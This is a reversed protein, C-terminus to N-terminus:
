KDRKKHFAVYLSILKDVSERIEGMGKKVVEQLLTVQSDFMKRKAPTKWIPEKGGSLGSEQMLERGFTSLQELEKGTETLGANLANILEEHGKMFEKDHKIVELFEKVKTFVVELSKTLNETQLTISDFYDRNQKPDVEILKGTSSPVLIHGAVGPSEYNIEKLVDGKPSFYRATGIPKGDKYHAEIIREGADTYLAEEGEKVGQKYEVLRKLIGNPHYLEVKGDLKGLGYGIHARISGDAYFYPHDGHPKGDIYGHIAAIGGDEFYFTSLGHKKGHAYWTKSLVAGNEGKYISPGHLMGDKRYCEWLISTGPITETHKESAQIEALEKESYLPGEKPVKQEVNKASKPKARLISEMHAITSKVYGLNLSAARHLLEYRAAQLGAKKSTFEAPKLVEKNIELSLVEKDMLDTYREDFMRLFTSYAEEKKLEMVADQVSLELEPNEEMVKFKKGIEFTTSSVRTLGEKAETLVQILADITVTKPMPSDLSLSHILGDFDFDQTLFEEEVEELTMNKVGPFGIGGETANVIVAHPRDVSYKSYWASEIMWKWLTLVPKGHIDTRPILEESESKTVFKLSGEALPHSSIIPAYSEDESYALDTGVTIIPSCGLNYALDFCANVVNYGSEIPRSPISLKQEFWYSIPYNGRTNQYYLDGHLLNLATHYIRANYFFPVMFAENTLIRLAHDDNPDLGYGLHPNIGAANLANVATGGAFILAKDKLTVLRDINKRLSPGAGCIIAPKGKFKEFFFSGVKSEPLKVLNAYFNRFFLAGLSEYEQHMFKHINISYDISAHLRRLKDVQNTLYYLLATIQYPKFSFQLMTEDFKKWSDFPGPIKVIRVKPDKLIELAREQGLFFHVMEIDDDIFILFNDKEKLWEKLPEYYYGLGIGYIFLTNIEKLKLSSVFRLAEKAPGELSHLTEKTENNSLNFNGNPDIILTWKEPVWKSAEEALQPNLEKLRQVNESFVPNM